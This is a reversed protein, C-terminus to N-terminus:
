CFDGNTVRKRADLSDYYGQLDVNRGDFSRTRTPTKTSGMNGIGQSQPMQNGSVPPRPPPTNGSPPLGYACTGNNYTATPNYNNASPDTCGGIRCNSSDGIIVDGCDIYNDALPNTCGKCSGNDQTALPNYNDAEPCTCGLVPLATYSCSGDDQTANPDYNIADPDVCGFVDDPPTDYTCSGDEKNAEPNYNNATPDTCGTVVPVDFTCSGNDETASSNYNNATPDTCGEIPLYTKVGTPTGNPYYTGRPAAFRVRGGMSNREILKSVSREKGFLLYIGYGTLFAGGVQLILSGKKSQKAM